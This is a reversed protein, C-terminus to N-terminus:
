EEKPAKEKEGNPHDIQADDEPPLVVVRLSGRYTEREREREREHVCM